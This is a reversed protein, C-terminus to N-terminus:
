TLFARFFDPELVVELQMELIPTGHVVLHPPNMGADRSM